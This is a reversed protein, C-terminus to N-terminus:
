KYELVKNINSVKVSIEERLEGDIDLSFLRDYIVKAKYIEGVREYLTAISSLNRYYNSRFEKQLLENRQLLFNIMEVTPPESISTYYELVRDLAFSLEKPVVLRQLSEKIHKDATPYDKSMGFFIGTYLKIFNDKDVFGEGEKIADSFKNLKGLIEMKKLKLKPLDTQSVNREIREIERLARYYGYKKAINDVHEFFRVEDGVLSKLDMVGVGSPPTPESIERLEERENDTVDFGENGKRAGNSEVVGSTNTPSSNSVNSFKLINTVNTRTEFAKYSSSSSVNRDEGISLKGNSINKVNEVVNIEYKLTGLMTGNSSFLQFLAIDTGFNNPVFIFKNDKIPSNIDLFAVRIPYKKIIWVGGMKPLQIEIKDGKASFVRKTDVLKEEGGPFLDRETEIPSIKDEVLEPLLKEESSIPIDFFSDGRLKYRSSLVDIYSFDGELSKKILYATYFDCSGFVLVLFVLLFM